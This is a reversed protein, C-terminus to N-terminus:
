RRDLIYLTWNEFLSNGLSVCGFLQLAYHKISLASEKDGVGREQIHVHERMHVHTQAHVCVCVCMCVEKVAKLANWISEM